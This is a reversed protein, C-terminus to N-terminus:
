TNTSTESGSQDPPEETGPEMSASGPKELPDIPVESSENATATDTEAKAGDDSQSAVTNVLIEFSVSPDSQSLPAATSLETKKTKPDVVPEAELDTGVVHPEEINVGDEVTPDNKVFRRSVSGAFSRVTSTGWCLGRYFAATGKRIGLLCGAVTIRTGSTIKRAVFDIAQGLKLVGVCTLLFLARILRATRDVVAYLPLVMRFVDVRTSLRKFTERQKEREPALDIVSLEELCRNVKRQDGQLVAVKAQLFVVEVKRSLPLLEKAKELQEQAKRLNHLKIQSLADNFFLAGLQEVAVRRDEEQRGHGETMVDPLPVKM